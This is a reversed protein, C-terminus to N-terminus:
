YFLPVLLQLNVQFKLRLGIADRKLERAAEVVSNGTSARSRCVPSTLGSFLRDAMGCAATRNHDLSYASREFLETRIRKCNTERAIDEADSRCYSSTKAAM